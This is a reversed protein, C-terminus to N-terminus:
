WIVMIVPAPLAEDKDGCLCKNDENRISLRLRCVQSPDALFTFVKYPPHLAGCSLKTYEHSYSFGEGSDVMGNNNTDNYLSIKLQGNYPSATAANALKYQITLGEKNAQPVATVQVDAFSLESRDNKIVATREPSTSVILAPCTPPTLTACPIGTIKDTTLVKLSREVACDVLTNAKQKIKLFVDFYHTDKMGKPVVMVIETENGVM